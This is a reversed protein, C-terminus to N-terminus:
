LVKTMMTVILFTTITLDVEAMSQSLLNKPKSELFLCCDGENYDSTKDDSQLRMAEKKERGNSPKTIKVYVYTAKPWKRFFTYNKRPHVTQM